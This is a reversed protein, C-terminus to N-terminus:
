EDHPACTCPAKISRRLNSSSLVAALLNRMEWSKSKSRLQKLQRSQETDLSWFAFAFILPIKGYALNHKDMSLGLTRQRHGFRRTVSIIM